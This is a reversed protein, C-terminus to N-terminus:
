KLCWSLFLHSPRSVKEEEAEFLMQWIDVPYYLTRQIYEVLIKKKKKKKLMKEVRPEEM